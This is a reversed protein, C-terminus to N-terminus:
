FEQSLERHSKQGSEGRRQQRQSGRGREAGIVIGRFLRREILQMQGRGRHRNRRELFSDQRQVLGVGILGLAVGPLVLLVVRTEMGVADVRHPAHGEFARRHEAKRGIGVGVGAARM